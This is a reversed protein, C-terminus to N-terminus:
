RSHKLTAMAGRATAGALLDLLSPELNAKRGVKLWEPQSGRASNTLVEDVENPNLKSSSAPQLAATNVPGLTASKTTAVGRNTKASALLSLSSPSTISPTGAAAGAPPDLFYEGRTGPEATIHVLYTAGATLGSVFENGTGDGLSSGVFLLVPPSATNYVEIHPNLTNGPEGAGYGPTSTEIRTQGAPLTVKYWDEDTVLTGGTHSSYTAEAEGTTRGFSMIMIGATAQGVGLSGFDFALNIGIDASAGNPDEPTNIIEFPDRNDFGEASVVRRSDASGMGITLGGPFGSPRADARVFEGGLVVDNFTDFSVGLPEGQDPDLNELWAVNAIPSGSINTLRTAITAFEDGDNFVIVRELQLGGGVNGVIRVGRLAGASLDELAVSIESTGLAGKNTYNSGNQGITFGAVPSGPVVFENGLFQIGTSGTIFSGDPNIGLTLKSSDLLLGGSVPTGPLSFLDSGATVHGLVGHAGTFNQATAYTDNGEADFAADRLVVMTYPTNTQGTIALNYTGAALPGFNSIMKRVSVAGSVGAALTTTTTGDFSQLLVNVDGPSQLAVTVRQGAAVSFSYNDHPMTQRVVVDDVYWGEYKNDLENMTDFSFRLQVTKGAYSSVDVTNAAIWTSSEAVDNYTALTTWTGGTTPKIQLTAVDLGATSQTVLLYNFDVTVQAGSLLTINPSTITGAARQAGGGKGKKVVEYTGKTFTESGGRGKTAYKEGAGFYMSHTPSHGAPEKHGISNHWLNYTAPDITWNNNGTTTEFNATWETTPNGDTQGIVAGRTANTTSTRLTIFSGNLNQATGPTNNAAGDHSETELAANLFIEVTYTGATGGVGSVAVTYTGGPFTPSGVTQLVADEGAANATASGGLPGSLTIAPRLGASPTVLVTITQGADVNITFSDTDGSTLIGSFVPDYILSGLPALPALPTPFPITGIDLSYSGAFALNPNGPTGANPYHHTDALAGAAISVDLTGESTIGSLTFRVTDADQLSAATVVGQSVYLDSKDVSLPDVPENLNVDIWAFPLQVASGAPPSTSLVQMPLADYRFTGTWEHIASDPLGVSPDADIAGAAIHMTQLGQTTVPTSNFHFTATLGGDSLLVTNAPIGNVTLDGANVSTSLSQLTFNVVFDTPQTGIIDGEAPTSGGVSMGTVLEFSASFPLNPNGAADTFAGAAVSAYLFGPETIGDVTFRITTNGPLVDVDTVNAQGLWDHYLSLDSVSVSDPDVAENLNLDFTTLPVGALPGPPNTSVIEMRVLDYRFTANWEHINLDPLGTGPDAKLTGAAIHMTQLGEAVVPTSGFHFTASHHDASLAVANAANGNVTLDTAQVTAADYPHSFNVVFDTPTTAIISGPAPNSGAVAMGLAQLTKFANLRGGTAVPTPGSTNLADIPDVNSLIASRIEAPTANPNLSWALAAVGSVHPTAMSTGSLYGYSSGPMTSLTDVGPAGLDVSNLGWNSFYAINDSSDTAAVSIINDSDYAAPYMPDFDADLGSNGAAAVFLIGAAGSANIADLLAPDYAGGGWSNSTVRINVGYTTRMMTAYELAAIAGETYGGGGSDLFKLGMIQVDWNVGAVGIGNNGEGGITGSVHTGHYHDDFPDGDNNVFDYGHVDDVYGNGDDDVGAVGGAEAANTWINDNLDPHTYDVGTDIVGVVVSGNGTAIDWAEPADIKDMGYLAGFDPDNPTTTLAELRYNPEAYLVNPNSRFAHLAAPVSNGPGLKVVQLGPVSSFVRGNSAGPLVEHAKTAAAGPQFRVLITSPDYEHTDLAQQTVQAALTATASLVMRPELTELM